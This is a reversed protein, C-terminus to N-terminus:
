GALAEGIDREAALWDEHSTGHPCGAEVWRFYARDAVMKRVAAQILTQAVALQVEIMKVVLGRTIGTDAALTVGAIYDAVRLLNARQDEPIEGTSQLVAKIGIGLDFNASLAEDLGGSELAESLHSASKALADAIGQISCLATLDPLASGNGKKAPKKPAGDAKKAASKKVATATPAM